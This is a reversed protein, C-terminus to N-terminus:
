LLKARDPNSLFAKVNDGNVILAGVDCLSCPPLTGSTLFQDLMEVPRYAQQYAYQGIAASIAGKQVLEPIGATLNFGVAAVKGSLGNRDIYTGLSLVSEDAVYAGALNPHAKRDM